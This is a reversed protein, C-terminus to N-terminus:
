RGRSVCQIRRANLLTGRRLLRIGDTLSRDIVEPEIDKIDVLWQRQIFEGYDRSLAQDMWWPDVLDNPHTQTVHRVLPECPKVPREGATRERAIPAFGTPSTLDIWGKTPLLCSM